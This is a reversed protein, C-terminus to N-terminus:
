YIKYREEFERLERKKFLLDDFVKPEFFNINEKFIREEKQILNDAKSYDEQPVILIPKSNWLNFALRLKTLAKEIGGSLEVEYSITPVGAAERKWVVDLRRNELPYELETFYHQLQGAEAIINQLRKHEGLAPEKDIPIYEIEPESIKSATILSAGKGLGIGWQQQMRNFIKNAYESLLEQFGIRWILNLDSIVIPSLSTSKNSWLHHPLLHNVEIRFRLPWIVKKKRKEEEWILNQRDIYKDKVSGLGIIGKIPSVVYFILYDGKNLSSFEGLYRDKLGWIPLPQALATEWNEKKGMVLWTRFKGSKLKITEESYM